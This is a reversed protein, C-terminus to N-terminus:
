FPLVSHMDKIFVLVVSMAIFPTLLIWKLARYFHMNFSMAVNDEFHQGHENTMEVFITSFQRRAPCPVEELYTGAKSYDKKFLNLNGGVSIRVSYKGGHSGLGKVPRNDVIEFGIMMTAGSNDRHHRYEDLVYIGQRGDRMEVNNNGMERSPWAKLPHYDVDTGLCMVNGNMTTVLLDMKGNGTLDDALVMSYSNEGIDVKFSCGTNGDVMYLYGDHAAVVVHRIPGVSGRGGKMQLLLPPSMIAGGAKVPFNHLTEGTKGNLAWIHGSSTCLVIDVEGDGNIDGLIPGQASFGSIRKEWVEKGRWNFVAVNFRNDTAVLELQGDDNVDGVAVQGQIEAMTVPWGEKVKGKHDLVYLFGLSTGLIIELKGDNDIDAVTPSSYIYARYATEDTTLDLHTQWKLKGSLVDFAVVGGAVYKKTNVDVDLDSFASPDSYQEKDFYYSVGFVIEDAGDKDLDAIIPTCLVHPDVYVYNAERPRAGPVAASKNHRNATLIVDKDISMMRTFVEDHGLITKQIHEGRFALDQSDPAEPAFFGRMHGWQSEANHSLPM